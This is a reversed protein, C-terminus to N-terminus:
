SEKENSGIQSLTGTPTSPVISAPRPPWVNWLSATALAIVGGYVIWDLDLVFKGLVILTAAAVGAVLPAYGRRRRARFGLAALALGLFLIMLPLLYATKMAFGLGVSSILGAYAPLM